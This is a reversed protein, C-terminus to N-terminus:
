KSFCCHVKFIFFHIVAPAGYSQDRFESVPILFSSTRIRLVKIKEVNQIAYPQRYIVFLQFYRVKLHARRPFAVKPDIQFTFIKFNLKLINGYFM